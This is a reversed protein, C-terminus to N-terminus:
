RIIFDLIGGATIDTHSIRMTTLNKKNLKVNEVLYRDPSRREANIVFKKGNPLNLICKDFLPTGLYYEGAAPNVPYFGM